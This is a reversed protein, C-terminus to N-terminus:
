RSAATPSPQARLLGPSDHSDPRHRKRRVLQLCCVYMCTMTCAHYVAYPSVLIDVKAAVHLYPILTLSQRSYYSLSSYDMSNAAYKKVYLQRLLLSRM